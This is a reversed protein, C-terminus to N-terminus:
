NWREILRYLRRGLVTYANSLEDYLSNEIYGIDKLMDLLVRVENCSGLANSLFHKFEAASKKRGYGEAINLPISTAARRLQRGLEFQEIQPLEVSLKHLKVALEYSVKHVELDKFEKIM